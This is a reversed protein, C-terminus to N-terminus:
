LNSICEMYKFERGSFRYIKGDILLSYSVYTGVIKVVDRAKGVYVACSSKRVHDASRLAKWSYTTAIDYSVIPGKTPIDVWTDQYLYLDGSKPRLLQGKRLDKVLM